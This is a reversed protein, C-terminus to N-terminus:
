GVLDRLSATEARLVRNWGYRWAVMAAEQPDAAAARAEAIARDVPRLRPRKAAGGELLALEPSV